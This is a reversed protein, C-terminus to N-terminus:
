VAIIAISFKVFIYYSSIDDFGTYQEIVINNLYSLSDENPLRNESCYSDVMNFMTVEGIIDFHVAFYVKKLKDYARFKLTRNTM